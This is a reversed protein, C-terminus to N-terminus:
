KAEPWETAKHLALKEDYGDVLWKLLYEVGDAYRYEAFASTVASGANGLCPTGEKSIHPHPVGGPHLRDLNWIFFSGSKALRIVFRGIPYLKGNSSISIPKTTLNIGKGVLAVGTIYPNSRIRRWEASLSGIAKKIRKGNKLDESIIRLDACERELKALERRRLEITREQSRLVEAAHNQQVSLWDTVSSIFGRRNLSVATDNPRAGKRLDRRRNWIAALTKELINLTTHQNLAFMVGFLIYWNNGIMQAVDHKGDSILEGRGPVGKWTLLAKCDKDILLDFIRERYHEGREGPPTSWPYINILNEQDPPPLPQHERSEEYFNINIGGVLKSFNELIPTIAKYADLDEAREDPNQQDVDKGIEVVRVSGKVGCFYPVKRNGWRASMFDSFPTAGVVETVRMVNESAEAANQSQFAFADLAYSGVRVVIRKATMGKDAFTKLHPEIVSAPFAILKVLKVLKKESEKFLAAVSGEM